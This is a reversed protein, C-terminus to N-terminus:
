QLTVEMNNAAVVAGGGNSMSAATVQDPTAFVEAGTVYVDIADGLRQAFEDFSASEKTKMDLM